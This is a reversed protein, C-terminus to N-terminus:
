ASICSMHEFGDCVRARGPDKSRHGLLQGLERGLQPAGLVVAECGDVRQGHLNVAGPDAQDGLGLGSPDHGGRGAGRRRVPQHRVAEVEFGGLGGPGRLQGPGAGLRGVLDEGGRYGAFGERHALRDGRQALQGLDLV